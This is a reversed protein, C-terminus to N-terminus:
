SSPLDGKFYCKFCVPLMLQVTHVFGTCQLMEAASVAQLNTETCSQSLDDDIIKSVLEDLTRGM